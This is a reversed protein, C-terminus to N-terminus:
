GTRNRTPVWLAPPCCVTRTLWARERAIDGAAAESAAAAGWAYGYGPGGPSFDRVESSAAGSALPMRGQRSAHRYAHTLSEDEGSPTAMCYRLSPLESRLSDTSPKPQLLKPPRESKSLVRRIM